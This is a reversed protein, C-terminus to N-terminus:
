PQVSFASGDNRVEFRGAAVSALWAASRAFGGFPFLHLGQVGLADPGAAALAHVVDEPGRQTILWPLSIGHVGLARISSGIGCHRAYGLLTSVKAPGALGVRVPVPVGRDRLRRLWAVVTAGDFCFQTVLFLDLGTRRALDIKADLTEWLALDKLRPHGDPYGAVGVSRIGHAQLVGSRLVSLSSEFPGLPHPLDGGIVLARSVSGDETLRAVLDGLAEHSAVQRAAIHPVPNFGRAHLRKAVSAIHHYPTGPTWAVFVDAGPPWLGPYGDLDTLNRTSTEISASRALGVLTTRLEAQSAPHLLAADQALPM